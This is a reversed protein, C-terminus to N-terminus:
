CGAGNFCEMILITQEVNQDIGGDRTEVELLRRRINYYPLYRTEKRVQGTM